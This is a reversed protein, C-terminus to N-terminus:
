DGDLKLLVIQKINPMEVAKHKTGQPVPMYYM